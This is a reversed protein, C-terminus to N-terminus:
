LLLIYVNYVYLHIVYNKKQKIKVHILYSKRSFFIAIGLCIKFRQCHKSSLFLKLTKWNQLLITGFFHKLKHTGGQKKSKFQSKRGKGNGRRMESYFVGQTLALLPAAIDGRNDERPLRLATGFFILHLTWKRHCFRQLISCFLQIKRLFNLLKIQKINWLSFMFVQVYVIIIFQSKPDLYTFVFIWAVKFAPYCSSIGLFSIHSISPLSKSLSGWEFARLAWVGEKRRIVSAGTAFSM